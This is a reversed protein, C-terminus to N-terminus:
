GASLVSCLTMVVDVQTRLNKSVKGKSQKGINERGVGMEVEVDTETCLFKVKRHFFTLM